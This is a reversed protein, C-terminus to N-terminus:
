VGATQPEGAGAVTVPAAENIKTVRVTDVSFQADLGTAISKEINQAMVALAAEGCDATLKIPIRARIHKM